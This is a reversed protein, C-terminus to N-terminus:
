FTIIYKGNKLYDTFEQGMYKVDIGLKGLEASVGYEDACAKCAKVTIGSKIMASVSEQLEKDESLLKSSPGWVILTVDQWWGFRKSNGVYMFVMKLAVDRDGSSWLVVLKDSSFDSKEPTKVGDDAYSQAVCCFILILLALLIRMKM